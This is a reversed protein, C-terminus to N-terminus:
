RPRPAPPASLPALRPVAPKSGDVSANGISVTIEIPENQRIELTVRKEGLDPHKVLIQRRGIPVELEGLPAVGVSEGEILIEAGPTTNIVLRGTPPSATYATVEGSKITVTLESRFAFRTNVIILRHSGLPLSIKEDETSGIKRGGLFIELPIKSLISLYGQEIAEEVTTRAGPRVTITRTIRGAPSELELRHTGAPVDKL